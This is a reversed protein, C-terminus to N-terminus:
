NSSAVVPIDKEANIVITPTEENKKMLIQGNSNVWVFKFNKQRAALRARWFLHKYAPGLNVNVYVKEESAGGVVNKSCLGTNRRKLFEYAISRTVFQVIIARKKKGKTGIRHVVDVENETCKINLQEAINMILPKLQEGEKEEIGHIEINKRRSYQDLREVECNLKENENKLQQVNNELKYIKEKQEKLIIEQNKLINTVEDLKDSQFQVSNVLQNVLSCLETLKTNMQELTPNSSSDLPGYEDSSEKYDKFKADNRILGSRTKQPSRNVSM